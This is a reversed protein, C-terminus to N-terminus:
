ETPVANNDQLTTNDIAAARRANKDALILVKVRRNKRRGSITDNSAVPRFEGFGIAALNEAPIGQKTFLHVVSAARSASLEWNSPYVPTRIPLDDTHGEVDIHNPLKYLIKALKKLPTYAEPELEASGSSFLISSKIEVEVWLKNHTVKIEERDILPQLSEKVREAIRAM